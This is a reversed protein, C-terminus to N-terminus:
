LVEMRCGRRGGHSLVIAAADELNAAVGGFADVGNEAGLVDVADYV